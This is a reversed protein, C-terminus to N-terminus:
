APRKSYVDKFIPMATFVNPWGAYFALQTLAESAVSQPLGNDLARNLHSALQAFQGSTVLSSVTVLSRDRPSLGPRLWLDTFIYDTTNRVVGPAVQGFNGGVAQARAAEGKENLPLRPGGAQALQEVRIGRQAFIPAIATAAATANPWGAYFALHTIIESIEGPKVGNDLALGTYFPLDSTKGRTIISTLTVISRDRMSMEPRKWVEGLLGQSTYSELAPSVAEVSIRKEPITQAGVTTSGLACSITLALATWKM